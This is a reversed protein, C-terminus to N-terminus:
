AGKSRICPRRVRYGDHLGPKGPPPGPEFGPQCNSAELEWQNERKRYVWLSDGGTPYPWASTDRKSTDPVVRLAERKPIYSARLTRMSIAIDVLAVLSVGAIAVTLIQLLFAGV